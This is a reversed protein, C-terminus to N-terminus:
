CCGPLGGSLWAGGSGKGGDFDTLQERVLIRSRDAWNGHIEMGSDRLNHLKVNRMSYGALGVLSKAKRSRPSLNGM